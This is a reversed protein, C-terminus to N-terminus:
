NQPIDLCSLCLKGYGDSRKMPAPLMYSIQTTTIIIMILLLLLLLINCTGNRDYHLNPSEKGNSQSENKSCLKLVEKNVAMFVPDM